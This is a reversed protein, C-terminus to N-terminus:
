TEEARNVHLCMSWISALWPRYNLLALALLFLGASQASHDATCWSVSNGWCNPVATFARLRLQPDSATAPSVPWSFIEGKEKKYQLMLTIKITCTMSAPVLLHDCVNLTCKGPAPQAQCVQSGDTMFHRKIHILLFYHTCFM